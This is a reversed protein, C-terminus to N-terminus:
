SLWFVLRTREAPGMEHLIQLFANLFRGGICQSVSESWEVLVSRDSTRGLWIRTLDLNEPFEMERSFLHAYKHHVYESFYLRTENWPFDVFSNAPAWWYDENQGIRDVLRALGASPNAPIGPKQGFRVRTDEGSSRKPFLLNIFSSNRDIRFSGNPDLNPSETKLQWRGRSDLVEAVFNIDDGM